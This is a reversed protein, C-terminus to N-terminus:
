VGGKGEWAYESGLWCSRKVQSSALSLNEICGRFITEAAKVHLVSVPHYWAATLFHSTVLYIFLQVHNFAFEFTFNGSKIQAYREKRPLPKVRSPLNFLVFFLGSVLNQYKVPVTQLEGLSQPKWTAMLLLSGTHHASSSPIYSQLKGGASRCWLAM